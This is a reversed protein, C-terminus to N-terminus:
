EIYYVSPDTGLEAQLQFGRRERILQAVESTPDDLDGFTRAKTPCGGICAPELGKELRHRCFDCKQVTARQYREIGAQEYPTPTATFYKTDKPKGWYFRAGYPCAMMCARCGICLDQDIFVIGDERQQSAGTPCIDVCPPEKCHNCLVPLYTIRTLPYQGEEKQLVRAYFVGPPTANEQKCAMQCAYCGICRKIDIVMGYRM